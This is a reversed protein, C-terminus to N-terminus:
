VAVAIQCEFLVHEDIEHHTRCWQCITDIQVRKAVLRVITPLCFSCVRWVFHTVRGPLKLGWLKRWLQAYPAEHEGQLVRYCSKVTFHGKEDPLWYWTDEDERISLPIKKILKRDRANCIDILVEEDWKKQEVQMLCCVKSGDLQTPMETTMYGNNACPLWQVKWIDTQTGDVIRKRCGKRVVEHAGLLSRWMYSPNSGLKATLFDGYPFYKAKMCMTVLPNENTLLRWGQKALMSINFKKLERFGLGGAEKIVCLKSWSNWGIGRNEQGYGWWFGNMIIEISDCVENPIQFLYMWFNPVCQAATKLLTCKGAKSFSKNGWTQLKKKIKNTLFQFM